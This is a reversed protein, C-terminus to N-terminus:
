PVASAALMTNLLTAVLKSTRTAEEATFDNPIGTMTLSATVGARIPVSVTLTGPGVTKAPISEDVAARAERGRPKAPAKPSAMVRAMPPTVPKYGSPDSKYRIFDSVATKMRSQYVQMSSPTYKGSSKNVWRNFALELNISRVDAQEATELTGLIQMVAAKRSAATNQNSLGVRASYDQFDAVDKVSFGEM